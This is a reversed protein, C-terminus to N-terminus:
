EEEKQPKITSILTPSQPPDKQMKWGQKEVYQLYAEPTKPGDMIRVGGKIGQLKPAAFKVFDAQVQGSVTMPCSWILEVGKFEPNEVISGVSFTSLEFGRRELYAEKYRLFVYQMLQRLWIAQNLDSQTHMGIAFSEQLFTLEKHLNWISTPPAIYCDTFDDKVETAIQFIKNDIVSNIVYAKGTKSSVLFQGAVAMDTTIGEPFTVYGKEKNYSAPTFNNYVKQIRKTISYPEIEDIYGEDALSTRDLMERSDTLVVTICPFRPTDVRNVLYVDINNALFWQKAAAVEKYGYERNAFNDQALEGFIDDLLWSNKRLDAFAAEIMTKILIDTSIIGMISEDGRRNTKGYKGM